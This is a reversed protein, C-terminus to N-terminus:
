RSVEPAFTSDLFITNIFYRAPDKEEKSTIDPGLLPICPHIDSSIRM